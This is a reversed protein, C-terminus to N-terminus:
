KVVERVLPLVLSHIRSMVHEYPKLVILDVCEARRVNLRSTDIASGM